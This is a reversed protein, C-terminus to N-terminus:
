CICGTRTSVRDRNSYCQLRPVDSPTRTRSRRHWHTIALFPHANELVEVPRAPTRPHLATLDSNQRHRSPTVCAPLGTDPFLFIPPSLGEIAPEKAARSWQICACFRFFSSSPFFPLIFVPSHSSPDSTSVRITTTRDTRVGSWWWWWWWWWWYRRRLYHRMRTRCIVRVSRPTPRRKEQFLYPRRNNIARATM